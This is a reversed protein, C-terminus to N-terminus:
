AVHKIRLSKKVSRRTSSGNAKEQQKMAKERAKEEVKRLKEEKKRKL